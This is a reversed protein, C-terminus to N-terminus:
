CKKRETTIFLFITVNMEFDGELDETSDKRTDSDQSEDNRSGLLSRVIVNTHESQSALFLLGEENLMWTSLLNYISTVVIEMESTDPCTLLCTIMQIIGHAHMLRFYGVLPTGFNTADINYHSHSPLFRGPHSMCLNIDHFVEKLNEFIECVLDSDLESYDSKSIVNHLHELQESLHIKTLISSMSFQTRSSPKVSSLNLLNKYLNLHSFTRLGEVTDLSADLAKLISLKLSMAMYERCYLNYLEQQINARLLQDILSGHCNFLETVFKLGVKLHRIKSPPKLQKMANDFSVSNLAMQVIKSVLKENECDPLEVQVVKTLVEVNEIFKEDFVEINEDHDIIDAVSTEADSGEMKNNVREYTTQSPDSLSTLPQLNIESPDFYTIPDEWDEDIELTEM